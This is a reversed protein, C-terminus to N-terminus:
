TRKCLNHTEQLNKVRDGVRLEPYKRTHVKTLLLNTKVQFENHEHTADEPTMGTSSHPKKENYYKLVNPLIDYWRATPYHKIRENLEYKITRIAREAINAHERTQIWQVNEKKLFATMLNGQMSADPDTYIVQPKGMKEFIFGLGMVWHIVDKKELPYIWCYKTFSDIALLGYPTEEKPKANPNKFYFLDVQFEYKAEPAIYSNYGRMKKTRDRNQNRWAVVDKMTITPDKEQADKLLVANNGFGNPNYYAKHITEYKEETTM